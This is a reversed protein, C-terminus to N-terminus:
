TKPEAKRMMVRQRVHLTLLGIAVVGLVIIAELFLRSIDIRTFVVESIKDSPKIGISREFDAHSRNIGWEWIFHRGAPIQSGIIRGGVDAVTIYPPYACLGLVVSLGLYLIIKHARGLKPMRAQPTSASQPKYRPTETARVPAPDDPAPATTLSALEKLEPIAVQSSLPDFPAFRGANNELWESCYRCKVALDQIEEACYPCIKM